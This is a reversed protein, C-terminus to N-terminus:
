CVAPDNSIASLCSLRGVAVLGRPTPGAGALRVHAVPGGGFIDGSDCHCYDYADRYQYKISSNSSLGLSYVTRLSLFLFM